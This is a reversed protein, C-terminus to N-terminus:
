TILETFYSGSIDFGARKPGSTVNQPYSGGADLVWVVRGFVVSQAALDVPFSKGIWYSVIGMADQNQYITDTDSPQRDEFCGRPWIYNPSIACAMRRYTEDATGMQIDWPININLVRSVIDAATYIEGNAGVQGPLLVVGNGSTDIGRAVFTMQPNQLLADGENVIKIDAYTFDPYSPTSAAVIVQDHFRLDGNNQTVTDDYGDNSLRKYTHCYYQAIIRRSAPIATPVLTLVGADKDWAINTTIKGHDGGGTTEFITAATTADLTQSGAPLVFVDVDNYYVFDDFTAVMTTGPLTTNAYYSYDATVAQGTMDQSFTITGAELNNTVNQSLYNYIARKGTSDAAGPYSAGVAISKHVWFQGRLPDVDWNGWVLEHQPGGKLKFGSASGAADSYLIMVIQPKGQIAVTTFGGQANSSVMQGTTLNVVNGYQGTFAMIEVLLDSNAITYTTDGTTPDAVAALAGPATADYIVLVDGRYPAINNYPPGFSNPSLDFFEFTLTFDGWSQNDIIWSVMNSSRSSLLSGYTKSYSWNATTSLGNADLSVTTVGNNTVLAVADNTTTSTGNMAICAALNINGFSDTPYSHTVPYFIDNWARTYNGSPTSRPLDTESTGSVEHLVDVYSTSEPQLPAFQSTYIRTNLRMGISLPITNGAADWLQVAVAITVDANFNDGTPNIPQTTLWLDQTTTTSNYPIVTGVNTGATKNYKSDFRAVTEVNSGTTLITFFMPLPSTASVYLYVHRDPSFAGTAPDIAIGAYSTSGTAGVLTLSTAQPPLMQLYPYHGSVGDYTLTTTASGNYYQDYVRCYVMQPGSAQASSFQFVPAISWPQFNLYNGDILNAANADMRWYVPNGPTPTGNDTAALTVPVNNYVVTAGLGGVYQAMSATTVTPQLAKLSIPTASAAWASVNAPIAHNRAMVNVVLENTYNAFPANIGGAALTAPVRILLVYTGPSVNIQAVPATAYNALYAQMAAPHSTTLVLQASMDFTGTADVGTAAVTYNVELVSEDVYTGTGQVVTINSVTIAM